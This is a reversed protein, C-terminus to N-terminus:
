ESEEMELVIKSYMGPYIKREKSDFSLKIIFSHTMNQINPIISAIKGKTKLDVGSHFHSTRFEGFNGSFRMPIDMPPRLDKKYESPQSFLCLSTLLFYFLLIFRNIKM